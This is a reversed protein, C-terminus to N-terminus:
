TTAQARQLQRTLEDPMYPKLLFGDAGAQMCEQQVNMGSTMLIYSKRSPASSLEQKRITKLIDIGNNYRLHVDMILLDPQQDQVTQPVDQRPDIVLNVEHGDLELLTKLLMQMTTDDEVLLIKSM